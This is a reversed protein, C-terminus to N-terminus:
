RDKLHSYLYHTRVQHERAAVLESALESMMCLLERERAGRRRNAAMFGMFGDNVISMIDDETM